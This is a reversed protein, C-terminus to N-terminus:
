AHGPQDQDAIAVALLVGMIITAWALSEEAQGGPFKFRSLVAASAMAIAPLLPLLYHEQQKPLAYFGIFGVVAAIFMFRVNACALSAQPKNEDPDHVKRGHMAYFVWGFVILPTWPLLGGALKYIYYMWRDSQAHATPNAADKAEGVLEKMAGPHAAELKMFWPAAIAGAIVLGLLVLLVKRGNFSHRLVIEILLPAALLLVTVHGKTLVALGLGVGFVLTSIFGPRPATVLWAAGCLAATTTAMLLTDGYGLFGYGATLACLGLLMGCIMGAVRSFVVCSYFTAIFVALATAAASPAEVARALTKESPPHGPGAESDLIKIAAATAWYPLPPKKLRPEGGQTPTLYDGSMVMERAVVAIRAEPTDSVARGLLAPMIYLVFTILGLFAAVLFDNRWESIGRPAIGGVPQLQRTDIDAEGALGYRM